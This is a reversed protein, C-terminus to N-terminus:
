ALKWGAMPCGKRYLFVHIWGFVIMNQGFCELHRIEPQFVKSIYGSFSKHADKADGELVVYWFVQM